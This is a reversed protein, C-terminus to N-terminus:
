LIESLKKKKLKKRLGIYWLWCLHQGFGRFSEHQDDKVDDVDVFTDCKM